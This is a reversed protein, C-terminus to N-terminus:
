GIDTGVVNEFLRRTDAFQAPSGTYLNAGQCGIEKMILVFDDVLDKTAGPCDVRVIWRQNADAGM